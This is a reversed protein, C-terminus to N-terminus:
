FYNTRWSCWWSLAWARSYVYTIISVWLVCWILRTSKKAGPSYLNHITHSEWVIQQHARMRSNGCVFIIRYLHAARSEIKRCVGCVLRSSISRHTITFHAFIPKGASCLEDFWEGIRIPATQDVDDCTLFRTAPSRFMLKVFFIIYNPTYKNTKRM